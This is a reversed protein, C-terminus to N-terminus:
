EEDSNGRTQGAIVLANEHEIASPAKDFPIIEWQEDYISPLDIGPWGLMAHICGFPEYFYYLVGTYRNRAFCPLSPPNDTGIRIEELIDDMLAESELGVIDYDKGDYCIFNYDYRRGGIELAQFRYSATVKFPVTSGDQLIFKTTYPCTMLYRRIIKAVEPIFRGEENYFVQYKSTMKLKMEM